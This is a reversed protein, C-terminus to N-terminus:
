RMARPTGARTTRTAKVAGKGTPPMTSPQVVTTVPDNVHGTEPRSIEGVIMWVAVASFAIVAVTLWLSPRRKEQVM